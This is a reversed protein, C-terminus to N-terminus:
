RKPPRTPQTPDSFPSEGEKVKVAQLSYTLNYTDIFAQRLERRARKDELALGTHEVLSFTGSQDEIELSWMSSGDPATPAPGPQWFAAYKGSRMHEVLAAVIEDSQVKRNADERGESYQELRDTHAENVLELLQEVRYDRWSIRTPIGPKDDGAASASQCAALLSALLVALTLCFHKSPM